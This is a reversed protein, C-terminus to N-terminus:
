RGGRGRRRLSAHWPRLCSSWSGNWRFSACTCTRFSRSPVGGRGPGGDLAVTGTEAIAVACTTLVGAGSDLDSVSLDEDRVLEVGTPRSGWEEPASVLLRTIGREACIEAVRVAVEAPECRAVTARYESARECFLAVREERGANGVAPLCATRARAALACRRDCRPDPRPDRRARLEDHGGGAASPVPSGRLCIARGRGPGSRVRAGVSRLPASRTRPAPCERVCAPECLHPRPRADRRARLGARAGGRGRARALPRPHGPHRDERPLRRLV